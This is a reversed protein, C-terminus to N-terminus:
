NDFFFEEIEGKKFAKLYKKTQKNIPVNNKDDGIYDLLIKAGGLQVERVDKQESFIQGEIKKCKLIRKHNIKQNLGYNIMAATYLFQQQNKNTLTTFFSGFTPIGMGTDRNMWFAVIQTASIFEKSKANVPNNFIYETAQYLLPEYIKYEPNKDTKMESYSASLQSFVTFPLILFLIFYYKKHM